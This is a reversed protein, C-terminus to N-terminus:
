ANTTLLSLIGSQMGHVTFSHRCEPGPSVQDRVMGINQAAREALRFKRSANGTDMDPRGCLFVLIRRQEKLAGEDGFTHFVQQVSHQLRGGAFVALGGDMQLRGAGAFGM